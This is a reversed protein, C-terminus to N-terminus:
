ASPPHAASTACGPVVSDIAVSSATVTFSPGSAIVNHMLNLLTVPYTGRAFGPPVRVTAYAGLSTSGIQLPKTGLGLTYVPRFGLGEIDILSGADPTTSFVPGATAGFLVSDGPRFNAGFVRVDIGPRSINPSVATVAPAPDNGQSSRSPIIPQAHVQAPVASRSTRMPWQM